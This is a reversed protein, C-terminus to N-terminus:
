LELCYILNSDSQGNHSVEGGLSYIFNGNTAGANREIVGTIVTNLSSLSGWGIVADSDITGLYVNDTDTSGSGNGPLLYQGGMLIIGTNYVVAQSALTLSNPLPTATGWKSNGMGDTLVGNAGQVAYEVTGTLPNNPLTPNNTEGGAVYIMGTSSSTAYAVPCTKFIGGTYTAGNPPPLIAPQSTFATGMLNGSSPNLQASWVKDTIGAPVTPDVNTSGGIVYLYGNLVAVGELDLANPLVIPVGGATMAQHWTLLEGNNQGTTPYLQAYWVQNTLVPTTSGAFLAYGGVTYIYNKGTTPSTYIVGCLDRGLGVPGSGGSPTWLDQWPTVFAGLAGTTPNVAARGVQTQFTASNCNYGSGTGCDMGGIVYLYDTGNVTAVAAAFTEIPNQLMTSSQVWTNPANNCAAVPEQALALDPFVLLVTLLLALGVRAASPTSYGHISATSIPIKM